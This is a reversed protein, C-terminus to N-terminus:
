CAPGAVIRGPMPQLWKKVSAIKSAGRMRCRRQRRHAEGSEITGVCISIGNVTGVISTPLTTDEVKAPLLIVMTGKPLNFVLGEDHLVQVSKMDKRQVAKVLLVYSDATAGAATTATTVYEGPAFVVSTATVAEDAKEAQQNPSACGCVIASVFLIVTGYRWANRVKRVCEM